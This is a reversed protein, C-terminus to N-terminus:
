IPRGPRLGLGTLLFFLFSAAVVAAAAAAPAAAASSSVTTVVDLTVRKTSGGCTVAVEYRGIGSPSALLAAFRGQADARVTSGPGDGLAVTV